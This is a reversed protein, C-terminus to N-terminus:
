ESSAAEAEDLQTVEPLKLLREIVKKDSTEFVGDIFEAYPAEAGEDQLVVRAYPQHRAIPDNYFLKAM